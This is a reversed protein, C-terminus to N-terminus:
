MIRLALRAQVVGTAAVIFLAVSANHVALFFGGYSRRSEYSL